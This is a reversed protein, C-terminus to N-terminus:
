IDRAIPEETTDLVMSHFRVKFLAQFTKFSRDEPWFAEDTYWACLEHEFIDLYNSQLWAEYDEDHEPILYVTGGEDDLTSLVDESADGPCSRAWDKYAETPEVVLAYRNVGPLDNSHIHKM